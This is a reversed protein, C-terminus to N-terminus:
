PTKQIRCQLAQVIERMPTDYDGLTPQRFLRMTPYWPSDDRGRLWRWDAYSSLLTFVDKGMAGALHAMVSDVTIVLDLNAILAATDAFDRFESTWDAIQIGAPPHAAEDARDGKQLSCFWVGPIQALPAFASLSTSRRWDDANDARGAWALGIKLRGDSPVRARWKEVDAPDPFIYPIKRPITEMTIDLLRPAGLLGLYYDFDVEPATGMAYVQEAGTTKQLLRQLEPQCFFIIKAGRDELIPLLRVFQIADGFGQEVFLLLRKGRLDEGNWSKGPISVRPPNLEPVKWRWEYEAWGERFNGQMLSVMALTWHALPFDPQLQIAARCAAVAEDLRGAAYLASALNNYAQAFDPRQSIAIRYEDIAGAHDHLDFLANGANNHAEPFNPRLRIAQRAAALAQTPEKQNMLANALNNHAEVFDPKLAVARRCLDVAERSNGTARLANALNSLAPPFNADLEIAKRYAAIAEPSRGSAGAIVGLDCYAQVTPRIAIARDILQMAIDNRGSRWALIGLMHYAEACDPRQALIQRYIKEADAFQNARQSRAALEMAQEITLHTNADPM